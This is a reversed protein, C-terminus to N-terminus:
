QNGMAQRMLFRRLSPIKNVAGLGLNRVLKLPIYQNSFLRNLGDTIFTLKLADSQRHDAYTELMAADGFDLGLSAHQALLGALDAVDRLGLNFGQGALPHIARAADGVLVARDATYKSSIILSLPYAWRKGVLEIKGWCGGSCATLTQNFEDDPLDLYYRAKDEQESWVLSSRHRGHEDDPMPLLAFPGDAMFREHAINHHPKEHYVVGVIGIQHYPITRYTIGLQDRVWSLRGDAGVLLNTRLTEGDQLKIYRCAADAPLIEAVKAPNMVYVYKSHLVKEWLVRRLDHNCVIHGLPEDGIDEHDFHLFFPKSAGDLKGESVRIDLIPEALPALNQWVGAKDLIQRSGFSIASTRGDAVPEVTKQWPVPEILTASIQYQDLLCALTLGVPGGGIIVIPSYDSLITNTM